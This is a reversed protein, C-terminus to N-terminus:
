AAQGGNGPVSENTVLAIVQLGKSTCNNIAQDYASFFAPSSVSGNVARINIRVWGAGSDAMRQAQAATLLVNGANDVAWGNQIGQPGAARASPAASSTALALAALAIRKRGTMPM